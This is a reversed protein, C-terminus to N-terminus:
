KGHGGRTMGKRKLEEGLRNIVYINDIVHDLIEIALKLEEKSPRSLNHLAENGLFRLHLLIEVNGETLYGEEMLGYIKGPLSSSKRKPSGDRFHLNGGKINRDKCIAEIIARIGAICLIPSNSNYTAITESYLESIRSPVYRSPKAKLSNSDREPYLDVKYYVEQEPPGQMAVDTYLKRFTTESCGGCEIIQYITKDWWHGENEQYLVEFEKRVTQNTSRNCSLCFSQLSM